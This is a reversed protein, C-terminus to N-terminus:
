RYCASETCEPRMTEINGLSRNGNLKAERFQKRKLLIEARKAEQEREKIQKLKEM